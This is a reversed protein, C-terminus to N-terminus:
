TDSPNKESGLLQLIGETFIEASKDILEQKERRRLRSRGFSRMREGTEREGYGVQLDGTSKNGGEEEVGSHRYNQLNLHIM